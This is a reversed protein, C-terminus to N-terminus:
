TSARSTEETLLRRLVPRARAFNTKATAAPMNLRRGIDAFSLQATYKLWVVQRQKVPLARIAQVVHKQLEQQEALEEPSPDPDPLTALVDLGEEQSALGFQSFLLPRKRRYENVCCHHAVQVLWAKLSRDVYLTPLSLYLQLLV